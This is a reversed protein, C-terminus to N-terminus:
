AQDNTAKPEPQPQEQNAQVAEIRRNHRRSRVLHDLKDRIAQRIFANRTWPQGRRTQESFRLYDLLRRLEDNPMRVPFVTSSKM